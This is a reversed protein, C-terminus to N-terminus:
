ERLAEIRWSFEEALKETWGRQQFAIRGDRDVFWTTPFGTIRADRVVYGDDRLMTFDYGQESMWARAMEWDDDNNITVIAVEDDDRYQEHLRQFEPMEKVCWACWVGWFNVVTIRGRLSDSAFHEGDITELTFPPLM